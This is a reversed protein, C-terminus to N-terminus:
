LQLDPISAVTAGNYAAPQMIIFLVVFVRCFMCSNNIPTTTVIINTSHLTFMKTLQIIRYIIIITLIRKILSKGVAYRITFM